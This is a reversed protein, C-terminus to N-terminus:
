LQASEGFHTALAKLYTDMIATHGFVYRSMFRFLPNPVDGRETITLTSGDGKPAVIYEWSGSYGLNRDVIQTVLRENPVESVVEYTITGSSGQERFPVHGNVEGLMEVNRIDPRWTASQRFDKVAAYVEIPSRRLHIARSAIHHEPLHSGIILITIAIAGLVAAVVALIILLTKM